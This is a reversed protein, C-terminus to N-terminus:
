PPPIDHDLDLRREIREMRAALHLYDSARRADTKIFEDMITRLSVVEDKIAPSVNM